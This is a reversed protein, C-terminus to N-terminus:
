SCDMSGQPPLIPGVQFDSCVTIITFYPLMTFNAAQVSNHKTHTLPSPASVFYVADPLGLSIINLANEKQHSDQYALANIEIACHLTERLSHPIADLFASLVLDLTLWAEM